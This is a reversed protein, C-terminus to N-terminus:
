LPLIGDYHWLVMCTEEINRNGNKVWDVTHLWPGSCGHTPRYSKTCFWGADPTWSDDTCESPSEGWSDRLNVPKRSTSRRRCNKLDKIIFVCATERQKIMGGQHRKQATGVKSTVSRKGECRVHGHERANSWTDASDIRWMLEGSSRLYQASKSLSNHSIFLEANSSEANFHITCRGGKRKLFGRKLAGTARIVPHGSEKFNGVMVGATSNWQGEPKHFQANWASNEEEGPGLFSWHGLLLRKKRLEQGEQFELSMRYFKREEDLCNDNIMSMFIIRDEFEEPSVLKWNTRIKQLIQLTQLDPSFIGSSSMQNETSGLYIKTNPPSTSREVKCQSRFARADKWVFFQIQTSAYRQKRGQNSQWTTFTSRMWPTFKWEISSVNLIEFDQDLILRQSIDFLTKLEECDTNRYTVSNDNYKHGLLVAAKMTTSM